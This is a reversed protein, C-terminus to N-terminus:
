ENGKENTENLLKEENESGKSDESETVGEESQIEGESSSDTELDIWGNGKKDGNLNEHLPHKVNYGIDQEPGVWSGVIM